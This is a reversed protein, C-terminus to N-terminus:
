TRNLASIHQGIQCVSAGGNRGAQVGSKNCNWIHRPPYHFTLYLEELNNYLTKAITSCLACARNVELGQAKRTAIELHRLRFRRLWGKGPVGTASWPMERSQTALAVKLRLEGATLPHGLDQMKFIYDVLKKEENPKLAPPNGRQRSTTKGLLHERLSSAPIGFKQSTAKVKMGNDSIADLADCLVTDIWNGMRHRVPMLTTVGNVDVGLSAASVDELTGPREGFGVSRSQRFPRYRRLLGERREGPHLAGASGGHREHLRIITPQHWCGERRHERRLQMATDLKSIYDSESAMSTGVVDVITGKNAMSMTEM